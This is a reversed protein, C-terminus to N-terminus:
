QVIVTKKESNTVVLCLHTKFLYIALETIEDCLKHCKLTANSTHLIFLTETRVFVSLQVSKLASINQQFTVFWIHCFHGITGAFTKKFTLCDRFCIM